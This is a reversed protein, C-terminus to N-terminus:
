IRLNRYLVFLHKPTFLSLSPHSNFKRNQKLLFPLTFLDQFSQTLPLSYVPDNGDEETEESENPKEDRIQKDFSEHSASLVYKKVAHAETKHAAAISCAVKLSTLVLILLLRFYLKM